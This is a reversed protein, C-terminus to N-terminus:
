LINNNLLLSANCYKARFRWLSGRIPCYSPVYIIIYLYLIMTYLHVWVIRFIIIIINNLPTAVFQMEWPCSSRTRAVIQHSESYTPKNYCYLSGGVAIWMGIYVTYITYSRRASCNQRVPSPFWIVCVASRSERWEYPENLQIRRARTYVCKGEAALQLSHWRSSSHLYTYM